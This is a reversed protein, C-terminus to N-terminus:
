RGGTSRDESIRGKIITITRDSIAEAKVRNHEIVCITKGSTKLNIFVESIHDVMQSNVGAFPEDILLMSADSMLLMGTSLLKQQGLSLSGATKGLKGALNIDDAIAVAREKLVRETAFITKPHLLYNVVNEGPHNPVPLILNDIVSLNKFIRPNQWIRGIGQKAIELAGQGIISKNNFLIDGSEAKLFGSIIHFLTTKGSGNEGFLSTITGSSLDFSVDDLVNLGDFSKRINNLKLIVSNNLNTNALFDM